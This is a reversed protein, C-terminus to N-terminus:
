YIFWVLFLKTLSMITLAGLGAILCYTIFDSIKKTKQEDTLPMKKATPKKVVVKKADKSNSKVQQKQLKEIKNKLEGIAM